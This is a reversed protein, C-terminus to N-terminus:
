PTLSILVTDTYGGASKTIYDTGLVNGTITLTLPSGPGAPTGSGAFTLSYPILDGSGIDVMQRTPGGGSNGGMNASFTPTVGKTCWYTTPISGSVDAGVSPDLAGFSLTSDPNSFRCTGLVSAQVTLTNTDAWAAGGAALVAFAIFVTMSKRM